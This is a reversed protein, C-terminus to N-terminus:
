THGGGGRPKRIAAFIYLLAFFANSMLLKFGDDINVFFNNDALSLRGNSYHM